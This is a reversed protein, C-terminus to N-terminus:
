KVAAGAESEEEEAAAAAESELKRRVLHGKYQHSPNGNITLNWKLWVYHAARFEEGHISSASPMEAMYWKQAQEVEKVPVGSFDYDKELRAIVEASNGALLLSLEAMKAAM